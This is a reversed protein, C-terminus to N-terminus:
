LQESMSSTICLTVGFATLMMGLVARRGGIDEGLAKGTALTVLLAVSNCLPVALSLDSSALTIYFILSGCQNLLFPLMYKYNLILFKMEALLQLVGSREKITELGETGTKLFPNTGGWLVAVLVMAALEGATVM